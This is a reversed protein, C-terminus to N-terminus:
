TNTKKKEGKVISMQSQYKRVKQKKHKGKRIEKMVKEARSKLATYFLWLKEKDKKHNEYQELVYKMKIDIGSAVIARANELLRPLEIKCEAMDKEYQPLFQTEYYETRQNLRKRLNPLALNLNLLELSYKCILYPDGEKILVDHTTEILNKTLEIRKKYDQIIEIHEVNEPRKSTKGYLEHKTLKDALKGADIFEIGKKKKPYKSVIKEISPLIHNEYERKTERFGSFFVSTQFEADILDAELKLREFDKKPLTKIKKKIANVYNAFVDGGKLTKNMSDEAMNKRYLLKTLEEM